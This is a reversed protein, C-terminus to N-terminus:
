RRTSQPEDDTVPDDPAERASLPTPGSTPQATAAGAGTSLEAAPATFAGSVPAASGNTSPEGLLDSFLARYHILAQRLEETVEDSPTASGTVGLTIERASRFHGVTQAHDVSLDAFAQDDDVAPYGRDAM